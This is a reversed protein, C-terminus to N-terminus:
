VVSKRDGTRAGQPTVAIGQKNCYAMVESLQHTNEPILVIDPSFVLDETEDHAYASLQEQDLRINSATLLDTFFTIDQQDIRKFEM